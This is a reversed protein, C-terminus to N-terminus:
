RDMLGRIVSEYKTDLATRGHANAVNVDIGLEVALEIAEIALAEAEDPHPRLFGSGASMGAAAMLATVPGETERPFGTSPNGDGWYSVYHVFSPDAGHEVLVRMVDPEIFRAALWFPTAGIWAPHFSLDLPSLRRFPTATLLPLNPDAGNALLASVAEKDRRLIAWHLASYGAAAANPDAGVELLFEVLEVNGSQVAVVTASIGYASADDVDAGAAVLLKASAVDGVRAAFLLPTNGGHHIWMQLDPHVEISQTSQWLQDWVDSRAHVDAGYRLLVEVVGAHRQSAAWMLATQGREGRRDPDAGAALLYEVVDPNGTRAATMVLTEGSLLAAGADAGAALLKRVMAASGNLSAPWLPTIGLYNVANADAGARILLDAAELDDRHSAWHLATTGDAEPANVDAGGEVLVRLAVMDGQKAADVIPPGDASGAGILVASIACLLLGPWRNMGSM